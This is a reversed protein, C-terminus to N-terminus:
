KLHGVFSLLDGDLPLQRYIIEHATKGVFAGEVGVQLLLELVVHRRVRHHRGREELLDQFAVLLQELDRLHDFTVRGLVVLDGHRLQVGVTDLQRAHHLM